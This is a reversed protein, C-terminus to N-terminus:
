VYQCVREASYARGIEFVRSKLIPDHIAHVEALVAACDAGAFFRELQSRVETKWSIRITHDQVIDFVTSDPQKALCESLTAELGQLVLTQLPQQGQALPM